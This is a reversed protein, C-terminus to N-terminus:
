KPQRPNNKPWDTGVRHGILDFTQGAILVAVIVSDWEGAEGDDRELQGDV